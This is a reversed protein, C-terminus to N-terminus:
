DFLGKVIEFDRNDICRTAHPTDTYKRGNFHGHVVNAVTKNSVGLVQGVGNFTPKRHSKQCRDSYLQVKTQLTTTDIM